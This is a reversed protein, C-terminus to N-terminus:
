EQTVSKLEEEKELDKQKFYEQTERAAKEVRQALGEAYIDAYPFNLIQVRERNEWKQGEVKPSELVFDMSLFPVNEKDFCKKIDLLIEAARKSDVKKDEIYLVIEGSEAGLKRIDYIKDIELKEQEVKGQVGPEDETYMILTGFGIDVTYPFDEKELVAKTMERYEDELRQHTNWKSLVNSKYSDYFFDGKRSFDLYFHTDISGPSTVKVFYHGDKFNYQAPKAVFDTDAYHEQMYKQAERQARIKSIPNGVFADIFFLLAGMLFIAAAFAAAKLYKRKM